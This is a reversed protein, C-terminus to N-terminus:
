VSSIARGPVPGVRRIPAVVALVLQVGVQRRMARSRPNAANDVAAVGVITAVVARPPLGRAFEADETREVFRAQGLVSM